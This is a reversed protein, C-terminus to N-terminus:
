DSVPLPEERPEETVKADEIPPFNPMPTPEELPEDIPVLAFEYGIEEGDKTWAWGPHLQSHESIQRASWSWTEWLVDEVAAIEIASFASLDARLLPILRRQSYAFRDRSRLTLERTDKLRTVADDLEACFPGHKRHIYHAGTIPEGGLEFYHFDSMWLLKHLKARGFHENAFNREAIYLILADLKAPKFQPTYAPM